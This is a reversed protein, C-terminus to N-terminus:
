HYHAKIMPCNVKLVTTNASLGPIDEPDVDDASFEGSLGGERVRLRSMGMLM